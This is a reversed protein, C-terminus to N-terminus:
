DRGERTYTYLIRKVETRLGIGASKDIWLFESHDTLLRKFPARNRKATALAKRTPNRSPSKPGMPDKKLRKAM